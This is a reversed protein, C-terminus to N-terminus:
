FNCENIGPTNTGAFIEGTDTNFIWHCLWGNSTHYDALGCKGGFSLLDAESMFTIPVEEALVSGQIVFPNKYYHGSPGNDTGTNDIAHARQNESIIWFKRDEPNPVQATTCVPQGTTATHTIDNQDMNVGVWYYQTYGGYSLGTLDGTVGCRLRVQMLQNQIGVRMTALMQRVSSARAENRFDLFQPLATAGLIAVLMIVMLLEIMTFGPSGRAAARRDM